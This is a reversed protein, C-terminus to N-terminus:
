RKKAIELKDLKAMIHDEIAKTLTVNHTSLILKM